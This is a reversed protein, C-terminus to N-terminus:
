PRKHMSPYVSSNKMASCIGLRVNIIELPPFPIFKHPWFEPSKTM